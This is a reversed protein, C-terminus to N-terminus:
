TVAKTAGAVPSLWQYTPLPTELGSNSRRSVRNAWSAPAPCGGLAEVAM